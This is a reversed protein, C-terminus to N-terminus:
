FPVDKVWHNLNEASIIEDLSIAGYELLRNITPAVINKIWAIKKSESPTVSKQSLPIKDNFLAFDAQKTLNWAQCRQAYIKGMNGLLIQKAVNQAQARRFVHEIRILGARKNPAFYEYVRTFTDSKLSGLYVTIGTESEAVMKSKPKSKGTIWLPSVTGGMNPVDHALDIRTVKYYSLIYEIREDPILTLARGGFEILAGKRRSSFFITGVPSVISSSFPARGGGYNFSHKDWVNVNEWAIDGVVDHLFQTADDLGDIISEPFSISLYDVHM